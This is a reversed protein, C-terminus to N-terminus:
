LQLLDRIAQEEEAVQESRTTNYIVYVEENQELVHTAPNIMVGLETFALWTGQDNNCSQRVCKISGNNLSVYFNQSLAQAITTNDSITVPVEYVEYENFKVIMTAEQTIVPKYMFVTLSSSLLLILLVIMGHKRKLHFKKM